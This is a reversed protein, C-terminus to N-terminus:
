SPLCPTDQVFKVACGRHGRVEVSRMTRGRITRGGILTECISALAATSMANIVPNGGSPGVFGLPIVVTVEEAECKEACAQEDEDLTGLRRPMELYSRSRANLAVLKGAESREEDTLGDVIEVVLRGLSSWSIAPATGKALQTKRPRVPRLRSDRSFEEKLESAVQELLRELRDAGLELSSPSEDGQVANIDVGSLRLTLSLEEDVAVEAHYGAVKGGFRDTLAEAVLTGAASAAERRAFQPVHSAEVAACLLHYACIPTSAALIVESM